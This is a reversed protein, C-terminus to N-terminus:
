NFLYVGLIPYHDSHGLERFTKFDAITFANGDYFQNDIRLFSPLKHYTFGFGFGAKEFANDLHKKMRGYAYGYPLENFDGALIVPFPSNKVMVELEDVQIARSEFGSKLQSLINKAEKNRVKEDSTIAKKLRIGMSRLQVNLVRITDKKVVIDTLLVGNNNMKWSVEEKHIIPYKSFTALGLSGVEGSEVIESHMFTYYSNNRKIKEVVRLSSYDPRNYFEQFCKIDASLTDMDYVLRGSNTSTFNPIATVYDCYMVNYSLVSFQKVNEELPKNINFKFTRELLPYGIILIVLSLLFKWSRSIIYSVLFFINIAFAVPVTLTLFGGMWHKIDASYSIQYVLLAYLAAIFNLLFFFKIIFAKLFPV